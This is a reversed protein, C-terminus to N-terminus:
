RMSYIPKIINILIREIMKESETSQDNNEFDTTVICAFILDDIRKCQLSKYLAFECFRNRFSNSDTKNSSLHEQCRRNLNKSKGVYLPKMLISSLFIIKKINNVEKFDGKKIAENYLMEWDKIFDKKEDIPKHINSFQYDNWGASFDITPCDQNEQNTVFDNVKNVDEIFSHMDSNKIRLPYFWAYVGSQSPIKTYNEFTYYKVIEHMYKLEDNLGRM